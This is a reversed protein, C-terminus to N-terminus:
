SANGGTLRELIATADELTEIETPELGRFAKV